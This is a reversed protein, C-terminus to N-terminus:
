VTLSTTSAETQGPDGVGLEAVGRVLVLYDDVM